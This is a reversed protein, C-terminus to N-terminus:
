CEENGYKVPMRTNRHAIINGGNYFKPNPGAIEIGVIEQYIRSMTYLITTGLTMFNLLLTLM